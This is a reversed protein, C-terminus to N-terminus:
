KVWDENEVFSKWYSITNEYDELDKPTGWCIYKVDFYQVKLGMDIAYQIAQDVYYEGGTIDKMSIMKEVAKVFDGGKKFWFMGTTAHDQMPNDSVPTKISMKKITKGDDKLLCWSHAKPNREINDDNTHSIVFVDADKKAKEFAELDVVMGNDCAAIFLEEDNNIYEKALLCTSAQGETLYNITIFKAQPYYKKIEEEVGAEKHFSRDVYVIQTNKNKASPIDKTSAIVMPIKKGSERDTTPIMPKSIKYGAKAFRSGAGAMPILITM